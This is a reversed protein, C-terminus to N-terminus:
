LLGEKGMREIINKTVLCANHGPGGRELFTCIVFKPTEVPFYGTFWAHSLGGTAQATGTKGAVSVPLGSLVHATGKPDDVVDKLGHSIRDLTSRKLFVGSVKRQYASVDKGEVGKLVFPTILRGGNAFVAVMRAMQLPTVLLDGQGISFNATDGSFWKKFRSIKKWLPSPVLGAAEYPLDLNTPRSLGFKLAYDCIAQAGLLLGTRYFFVDCSHAIAGNLDQEGHTDWCKFDRNGIALYGPCNFSTSPKIKGTELAAAAVVMKFVSGPPYLGSIARNFLPADPDRFIGDISSSSPEIFVSPDFDPSSAMAIVEGSYPELMIVGGKWGALAEEAIKQIRIDLTLQIDKGSRPPEFGVVRVFRGKRDVEVSEGGDEQRLYYDYKEEVGGFGVIDKTKYGYDSLKTLRWRDIENLYGIMHSAIKGHPYHRLPHPRILVGTLEFKMEEIAIARKINVNRVLIVPISSSVFGDSFRQRLDGYEMGLVGSLRELTEDLERAEQPLIMVDYSLRSGVIVTSNRDLIRGRSGMQPLLRIRNKKSLEGYKRGQILQMNLLGAMLFLFVCAVTIHVIRTRM